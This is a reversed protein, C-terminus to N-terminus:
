EKTSFYTDLMPIITKVENDSPYQSFGFMDVFNKEKARIEAMMAANGSKVAFYKESLRAFVERPDTYYKHSAGGSIAMTYILKGIKYEYSRVIEGTTIDVTEIEKGISSVRDFSKQMETRSLATRLLSYETKSSGYTRKGNGFIQHDLYHSLEHVATSLPTPIASRLSVTGSSPSYMGLAPLNSVERIDLSGSIKTINMVEAIMDRATVVGNSLNRDEFNTKLATPDEYEKGFAPEAWCRCNWDEGPHRKEGHLGVEPPNQWDHYTGNMIYHNDRTAGDTVCRWIYGPIGAENQRTRNVQGYFKSAQDRAWFRAKNRDAGTQRQLDDVMEPFSKGNSLGNSLIDFISNAHESFLSSKLASNVKVTRDLITDIMSGSIRTTTIWKTPEIRETIDAGQPTNLRTMAKELSENVFSTNWADLLCFVKKIKEDDTSGISGLMAARLAELIAFPDDADTRLGDSKMMSSTDGSLLLERRIERIERMLRSSFRDFASTFLSEYQQELHIPYM